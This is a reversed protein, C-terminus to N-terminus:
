KPLLQVDIFGPAPEPKAKGTSGKQMNLTDILYQDTVITSGVGPAFYSPVQFVFGWAAISLRGLYITNEQGWPDSAVPNSFTIIDGIIPLEGQKKQKDLKVSINAM